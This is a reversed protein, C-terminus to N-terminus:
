SQVLQLLTFKPNSFNMINDCVECHWYVNLYLFKNSNIYKSQQGKRNTNIHTGSELRNKYYREICLKDCIEFYVRYEVDDTCYLVEYNDSESNM